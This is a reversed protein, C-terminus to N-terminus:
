VLLSKEYLIMDEIEEDSLQVSSEDSKIFFMIHQICETSEYERFRIAHSCTNFMNLATIIGFGKSVVSFRFRNQTQSEIFERQLEESIRSM